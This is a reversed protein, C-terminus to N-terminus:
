RQNQSKTNNGKLQKEMEKNEAYQKNKELFQRRRELEYILQTYPMEHITEHPMIQSLM